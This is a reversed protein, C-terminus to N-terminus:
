LSFSIQKCMDNKYDSIIVDTNDILVTVRQTDNSHLSSFEDINGHYGSLHLRVRHLNVRHAVRSSDTVDCRLSGAMRTVLLRELDSSLLKDM